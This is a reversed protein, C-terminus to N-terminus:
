AIMVSPIERTQTRIWNVFEPNGHTIPFAVICPCEYSHLLRVRSILDGLRDEMTKVLFACESDMRIQGEWEYISQIHDFINVCAALKERVLVMGISAAEEQNAATLYVIYANM